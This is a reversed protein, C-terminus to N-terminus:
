GAAALIRSGDPTTFSALVEVGPALTAGDPQNAPAVALVFRLGLGTALRRLTELSPNHEGLELRGVVSQTMGLQRAVQRQSLGHGARYKIIATGVARAFATREWYARFEPDAALRQNIVDRIPVLETPV